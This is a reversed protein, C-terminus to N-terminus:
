ACDSLAVTPYGQTTITITPKNKGSCDSTLLSFSAAAGIKRGSDLFGISTTPGTLVGDGLSPWFRLPQECVGGPCGSIDRSANQNDDVFAMWGTSWNSVNACAMGNTNADPNAVPCLAVSVGRKIAESRSFQIAGILSDSQTKLQKNQSLTRFSPVSIGVLIAILVLTILLELLSFGEYQVVERNVFGTVFLM